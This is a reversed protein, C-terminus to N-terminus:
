HDRFPVRRKLNIALEYKSKFPAVDIISRGWSDTMASKKLYSAISGPFLFM